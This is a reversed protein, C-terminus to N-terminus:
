ICKKWVTEEGERIWVGGGIFRVTDLYRVKCRREAEQAIKETAAAATSFLLGIVTGSHAINVGLAGQSAGFQWLAELEEKPLISQNAFSSLTAGSALLAADSADLGAKVLRLAEAVKDSKLQNLLALEQRQNFSVTDVEGGVDFIMITLPPPEGLSEQIQGSVHDFMAVGPIFVGDTPEIELAIEALERASFLAGHFCAVAQCVSAIDASSSAMGKGQPLQSSLVLKFRREKIGLRQLSLEVARSAKPPLDATYNDATEIMTESYRDIPCTILFYDDQLFGQVLEGCSGPVRVRM